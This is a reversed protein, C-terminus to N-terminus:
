IWSIIKSSSNSIKIHCRYSIPLNLLQKLFTM